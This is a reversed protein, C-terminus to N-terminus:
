NRKLPEQLSFVAKREVRIQADSFLGTKDALVRMRCSDERIFGFVKPIDDATYVRQTDKKIEEVLRLKDTKSGSALHEIYSSDFSSFYIRGPGAINFRVSPPPYSLQSPTKLCFTVDGSKEAAQLAVSAAKLRDMCDVASKAGLEKCRLSLQDIFEPLVESCPKTSQRNIKNCADRGVSTLEDKENPDVYGVMLALLLLFTVQILIDVFSIGIVRERSVDRKNSGLM